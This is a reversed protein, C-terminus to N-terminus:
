CFILLYVRFTALKESTVLMINILQSKTLM